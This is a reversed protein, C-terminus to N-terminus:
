ETIGGLDGRSRNLYLDTIPQGIRDRLISLIYEAVCGTAQSVDYSATFYQWDDVTKPTGPDAGDFFAVKALGFPDIRILPYNGCCVHWNMGDAHVHKAQTPPSSLRAALYPIFDIAQQRCTAGLSALTQWCDRGRITKNGCSLKRAIVAPRLAREARNNTPEAVPEYLCGLLHPRQKLLRHHVAVDAPQICSRDFLQDRWAEM